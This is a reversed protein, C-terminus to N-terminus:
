YVGCCMSCCVGCCVSCGCRAIYVSMHADGFLGIKTASYQLTSCYRFWEVRVLLGKFMSAVFQVGWSLDLGLGWGQVGLGSICTDSSVFQIGRSLYLGLGWGQVRVGSGQM